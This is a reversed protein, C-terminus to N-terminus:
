RMRDVNAKVRPSTQSLRDMRQSGATALRGEDRKMTQRKKEKRGKSGKGKGHGKGHGAKGRGRGRGRGKGRGRGRGRGRGTTDGGLNLQDQKEIPAVDDPFM